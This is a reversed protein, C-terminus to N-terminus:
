HPKNSSEHRPPELPESLAELDAVPPTPPKWFRQLIFLTVGACAALIIGLLSREAIAGIVALALYARLAVIMTNRRNGYALLVSGTVVASWLLAGLWHGQHGVVYDWEVSSAVLSVLLAVLAFGQRFQTRRRAPNSVKSSTAHHRRHRYWGIYALVLGWAGSGMAIWVPRWRLATGASFVYLMGFLFLAGYILMGKMTATLPRGGRISRMYVWCMCIFVLTLCPSAFLDIALDQSM